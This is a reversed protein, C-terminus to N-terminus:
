AGDDLVSLDVGRLAAKATTKPFPRGPRPNAEAYAQAARIQRESLSPYDARVDEVTMGELLAAIRHAQIRTGKIFAEDDTVAIEDTLAELEDLRSKVENFHRGFDFRYSGAAVEAVSGHRAVKVLSEYLKSRGAPTYDEKLEPYAHLYVLDALGFHRVRVGKREVIRPRVPEREVVKRLVGLPENLIVAAQAATWTRSM